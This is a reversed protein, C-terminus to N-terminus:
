AAGAAVKSGRKRLLGLAICLLVLVATQILFSVFAHKSDLGGETIAQWDKESVNPPNLARLKAPTLSMQAHSAAVLASFVASAALVRVRVKGSDTSAYACLFGFAFFLLWIWIAAARNEYLAEKLTNGAILWMFWAIALCFLVRLMSLM